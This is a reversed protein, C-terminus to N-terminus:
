KRRGRVTADSLDMTAALHSQNNYGDTVDGFPFLDSHVVAQSFPSLIQDTSWCDFSKLCMKPVAATRM